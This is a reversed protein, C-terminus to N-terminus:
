SEKRVFYMATRIADADETRGFVYENCYKLEMEPLNEIYKARRRICYHWEANEYKNAICTPDIILLESKCVRQLESLAKKFVDYDPMHCCVTVCNVFDFQKDAFPMKTVSAEVLECKEKWGKTKAVTEAYELMKPSVDCGIVKEPANNIFFAELLRGVGTGADLVNKNDFSFNRTLFGIMTATGFQYDGIVANRGKEYAQKSWFEEMNYSM